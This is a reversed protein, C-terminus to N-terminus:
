GHDSFTLHLIASIFLEYAKSQVGNQTPHHFRMGDLETGVPVHIMGKNLTDM